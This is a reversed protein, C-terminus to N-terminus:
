SILLFPEVYKLYEETYGNRDNRIAFTEELTPPNINSTLVYEQITRYVPKASTPQISIRHICHLRDNALLHFEEGEVKPLIISFRGDPKLLHCVANILEPFSLQGDRHKSKLRSDDAPKLDQNFFPPNSVILDFSHANETQAFDQLRTRIFHFNEQPLLGFLSTNLTAEEISDNDPDIGWVTTDPGTKQAMCFAIVGCGCGIDLMKQVGTGDTLAALLVADTGIKMTSHGHQLSFQKFQFIM